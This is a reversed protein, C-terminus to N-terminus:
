RSMEFKPLAHGTELLSKMGCLIIPWGKRGGELYKSDLTPSHAETMTLRVLEGLDDIQYTVVTDPLHRLEEMRVVRWSVVLKRPPDSELVKGQVDLTGDDTLLQWSSGVKWDSEIRRGFFYQTTFEPQTLAAWVKQAPAVIYITYMTNPQYDDYQSTDM